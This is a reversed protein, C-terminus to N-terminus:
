RITVTTTEDGDLDIYGSMLDDFRSDLCIASTKFLKNDVYINFKGTSIHETIKIYYYFLSDDIQFSESKWPTVIDKEIYNNGVKYRVHATTPVETLVEYQVDATMKEGKINKKDHCNPCLTILREPSVLLNKRIMDMMEQWNIDDKHHVEVKKEKGKAVSQKVGCEQCTYKDRKLATARERSRMWIQRLASKVIGNPTYPLKKPM